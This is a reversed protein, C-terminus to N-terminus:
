PKQASPVVYALWKKMRIVVKSIIHVPKGYKTYIAATGGSGLSLKRAVAQDTFVIKVAYLGDSGGGAANPITGSPTFQGGGSAPIVTDVKAAFIWGPYPDLVLEVDNGPEVNTLYNQPFAAFVNIDATDVFTGAAAVPAPV